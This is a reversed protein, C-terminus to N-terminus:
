FTLNAAAFIINNTYDNEDLDSKNDAYTYGLSLRGLSIDHYLSVGAGYRDYEEPDVGSQDFNTYRLQWDLGNKDSFPITGELAGGIADDERNQEVYEDTNIFASARLKIRKDYAVYASYMTRESPGDEVTVTYDSSFAIGAKMTDSFEYDASVDWIASDEDYGFEFTQLGERLRLIDGIGGDLREDVVFADDVGVPLLDPSEDGM